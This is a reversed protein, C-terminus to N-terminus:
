QAARPPLPGLCAAPRVIVRSTPLDERVAVWTEGGCRIWQARVGGVESLVTEAGRPGGEPSLPVIRRRAGPLGEPSAERLVAVLAPVESADGRDGLAEPAEFPLLSEAWARPSVVTATPLEAGRFTTHIVQGAGVCRGTEMCREQPMRPGVTLVFHASGRADRLGTPVVDVEEGTNIQLRESLNRARAPVPAGEILTPDVLSGPLRAAGLLGLDVTLARLAVGGGGPSAEHLLITPRPGPIASVAQADGLRWAIVPPRGPSGSLEILLTHRHTRDGVSTVVWSATGDAWVLHAGHLPVDDWATVSVTRLRSASGELRAVTFPAGVGNRWAFWLPDRGGGEASQALVPGLEVAGRAVPLPALTLLGGRQAPRTAVRVSTDERAVLVLLPDSAGGACSLDFDSVRGQFGLGLASRALEGPCPAPIAQRWRHTLRGQAVDRLHTRANYLSLAGALAVLAVSLGAAVGLTRGLRVTPRAQIPKPVTTHPAPPRGSRRLPERPSNANDPQFAPHRGTPERRPPAGPGRVPAMTTLRAGRGTARPAEETDLRVLERLTEALHTGSALAPHQGHMAAQHLLLWKVAAAGEPEVKALGLLTHLVRVLDVLDRHATPAEGSAGRGFHSLGFGALALPAGPEPGLAFVQTAEVAGHIYGVTHGAGLAEAMSAASQLLARAVVGRGASAVWDPFVRSPSLLLPAELIAVPLSATSLLIERPVLVCAARPVLGLESRLDAIADPEVPRGTLLQGHVVAADRRVVEFVDGPGVPGALPGVTHRMGLPEGAVIM